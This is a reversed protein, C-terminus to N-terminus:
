VSQQSKTKDQMWEHPTFIEVGCNKGAKIMQADWTILPLTNKKAVVLFLHDMAKITPVDVDSYNSLFQDDIHIFEIAVQQQGAIIPPVIDKEKKIRNITCNIEFWGHMPMAFLIQRSIIYDM